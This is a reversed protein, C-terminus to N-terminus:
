LLPLEFFFTTGSNPGTEFGIEGGLQEVIAKCISLGLGTGGRPRTASADAQAFKEFIRARFEPPIGDGRDHVEVRGTQDRRKLTVTVVGGEPSFKAANSLLNALVQNLRCADSKIWLERGGEDLLASDDLVFSVNLQAGYGANAELAHRVLPVMDLKELQFALFGSEIKQLDLIDNILALLRISNRQAIELMAQARDPVKGTVGGVILGLSGHISTLPTRLEHSVVSVFDDKMRLAEELKHQYEELQQQSRVTESIDLALGAVLRREGGGRQLPFKYVQWYHNTGDPDTWSEVNALIRDGSLANLDRERMHASTEPWLDFDDHGIVQEEKLNFRRLFPQNIYVYRGQDDKLFAMVPSYDMFAQFRGESERLAAETQVRVAMQNALEVAQRRLELQAMTQRALARLAQKQEENLERPFHDVVCLTGVAEGSPTVLPAGAYFRVHPEGTVVPNDAFRQDYRADSVILLENPELVAHACFSVDRSTEIIELGRKSKFWQRDRDILSVFSLPTGCIHSALLTLDDFGQEPLTDLVGYEHLAALRQEENKPLHAKM